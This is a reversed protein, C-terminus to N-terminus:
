LIEIIEKRIQEIKIKKYVEIKIMYFNLNLKIIQELLLQNLM